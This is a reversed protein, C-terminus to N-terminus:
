EGTRESIVRAAPEGNIDLLENQVGREDSGECKFDGYGHYGAATRNRPDMHFGVTDVETVPGTTVNGAKHHVTVWDGVALVHKLTYDPTEVPELKDTDIQVIEGNEVADEGFAAALEYQEEATLDEPDVEGTLETM